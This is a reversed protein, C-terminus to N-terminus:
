KKNGGVYGEIAELILNNITRREEIKMISLKDHYTQPMKLLFHKM